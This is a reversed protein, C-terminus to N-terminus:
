NFLIDLHIFVFRVEKNPIVANRERYIISFGSFFLVFLCILHKIIFDLSNTSFSLIIHLIKIHNYRKEREIDAAPKEQDSIRLYRILVDEIRAYM